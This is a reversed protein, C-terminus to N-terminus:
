QGAGTSIIFSRPTALFVQSNTHNYWTGPIHTIPAEAAEEAAPRHAVTRHGSEPRACSLTYAATPPLSVM